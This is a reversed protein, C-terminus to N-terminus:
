VGAGKRFDAYEPNEDFFKRARTKLLAGKKQIYTTLWWPNIGEKPLHGAAARLILQADCGLKWASVTSPRLMNFHERIVKSEFAGPHVNKGLKYKTHHYLEEHAIGAWMVAHRQYMRRHPFDDYKRKRAEEITMGQHCHYTRTPTVIANTNWPWNPANLISVAQESLLEDADLTLIWSYKASHSMKNRCAAWGHRVMINLPVTMVRAGLDRAIEATRDESEMDGVLVDDSVRLASRITNEIFWDENRAMVAVTIPQKKM